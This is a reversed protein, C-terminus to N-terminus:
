TYHSRKIKEIKKNGLFSFLKDLIEISLERGRCEDFSKVGKVTDIKSYEEELFAILSLGYHNQGLEKLNDLHKTDLM